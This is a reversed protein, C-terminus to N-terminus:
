NVKLGLKKVMANLFDKEFGDNNEYCRGFTKQWLDRGEMCLYFYVKDHWGSFCDYVHRFMEAKLGEPYTYKGDPNKVFPMQHVKTDIRNKRISKLVPKIFHLTGLSVFLVEEPLFYETIQRALECYDEEWRDYMIIPHVHFAVKIQKDAVQRAAKLRQELSATRKEEHDIIVQPNVSWACFVNRPVHAKLLYSVNKSKTKLEVLAQPNARVFGFLDDLIGNKNGWMLSDSSQGTGIHIWSHPDLSIRELQERLDKQFAIRGKNKGSFTQISCYHCDFGCNIVLDFTRLHCCITKESYAPCDGYIKTLDQNTEFFIKPVRSSRARSDHYSKMEEKKGQYYEHLHQLLMHKREGRNSFPSAELRSWTQRVPEAKWAALDLFIDVMQKLEQHTLRYHAYIDRVLGRDKQALVSYLTGKFSREFQEKQFRTM